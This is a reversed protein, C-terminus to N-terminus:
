LDATISGCSNSTAVDSSGPDRVSARHRAHKIPAGSTQMWTTDPVPKESALERALALGFHHKIAAEQLM